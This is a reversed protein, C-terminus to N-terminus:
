LICACWIRAYCMAREFGGGASSGVGGSGKSISAGGGQGQAKAVRAAVNFANVMGRSRQPIDQLYVAM